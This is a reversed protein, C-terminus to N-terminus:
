CCEMLNRQPTRWRMARSRVKAKGERGEGGKPMIGALGTAMRLVDAIFSSM